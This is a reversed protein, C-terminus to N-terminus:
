RIVDYSEQGPGRGSKGQWFRWVVVAVQSGRFLDNSVAQGFVGRCCYVLSFSHSPEKSVDAGALVSHEEVWEKEAQRNCCLAPKFFNSRWNLRHKAIRSGLILRRGDTKIETHQRRWEFGSQPAKAPIHTAIVCDPNIAVFHPNRM